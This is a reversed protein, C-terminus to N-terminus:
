KKYYIKNFIKLLNLTSDDFYIDRDLKGINKNCLYPFIFNSLKKGLEVGWQDFSFINLIISQTFVKHEYLSILSGLTYPDIKKLLITNSPRNGVFKCFNKIKNNNNFINKLFIKDGFALSQTQSFFNSILKLHSKNVSNDNIIEVIFDCPIIYTGQHLLQYFSHQSVTGIGGWVIPSTNYDFILNGNRDIYKGNSEMILQQLYYPFYYLKESYPIIIENSFKFFNTYWVSLISLIIPINNKYDSTFFHVDMDHAGDLLKVFNSYGIALSISLGFASCFSYRGGVWDHVLFINNINLGFKISENFNSSILIFHNNISCLNKNFYNLIWNRAINANSLTELTTFTKSCVIFITEEPSIKSIVKKIDLVDINSVFYFNLNKNKKYLYLSKIIMRPGLDSGGIGINVINTIKKGSYGLWEGSLIKKTFFKIKNLNVDIDKKIDFFCSNNKIFFNNKDRLLFNLVPKNETFNIKEGFFMSLINKKFKIENLLDIFLNITDLNIINKSYDILIKNKFFISFNKFRNKDEKFLDFIKVNKISLFHNKIIKWSKTEIPNKFM